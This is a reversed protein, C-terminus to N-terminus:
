RWDPNALTILGRSNGQETAVTVPNSGDADSVILVSETMQGEAQPEVDLRWAHAIRRGDPSWCYGASSGNLPQGQVRAVKGSRVDLV